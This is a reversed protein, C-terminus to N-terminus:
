PSPRTSLVLRTGLRCSGMHPTARQVPMAGLLALPQKILVQIDIDPNELELSPALDTTESRLSRITNRLSQRRL